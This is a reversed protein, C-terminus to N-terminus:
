PHGFWALGAAAAGPPSGGPLSRGPSREKVWARDFDIVAENGKLSGALQRISPLFFCWVNRLIM